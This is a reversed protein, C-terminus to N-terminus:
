RARKGYRILGAGIGGGLAIYILALAATRMRGDPTRLRSCNELCPDLTFSV